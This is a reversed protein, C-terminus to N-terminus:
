HTTTPLYVYGITRVLPILGGAGDGLSERAALGPVLPTLM